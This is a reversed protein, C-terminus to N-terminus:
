DILLSDFESSNMAAIEPIRHLYILTQSLATFAPALERATFNDMETEDTHKLTEVFMNDLYLKVELLDYGCLILPELANLLQKKLKKKKNKENNQM